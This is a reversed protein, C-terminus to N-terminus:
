DRTGIVDSMTPNDSVDCYFNDSMAYILDGSGRKPDFLALSM